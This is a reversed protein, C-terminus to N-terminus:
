LLAALTSLRKKGATAVMARRANSHPTRYDSTAADANCGRRTHARDTRLPLQPPSAVPVHPLLMELSRLERLGSTFGSLSSSVQMM